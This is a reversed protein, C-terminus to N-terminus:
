QPCNSHLEVSNCEVVGHNQPVTHFLNGSKGVSTQSAVANKCIRMEWHNLTAPLPVQSPYERCKWHIYSGDVVAATSILLLALLYQLLCTYM